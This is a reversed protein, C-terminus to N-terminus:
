KEEQLEERIYHIIKWRDEQQVISGHAGMVGYGVTIVHFLEGDKRNRIKESTLDRPPVNYKGSTVLHGKGKGQDGHCMMCYREYLM